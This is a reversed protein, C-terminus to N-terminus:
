RVFYTSHPGKFDKLFSDFYELQEYSSHLIDAPFDPPRRIIDGDKSQLIKYCTDIADVKKVVSMVSSDLKTLRDTFHEDLTNIQTKMSDVDTQIANLQKQIASLLSLVLIFYLCQFAIYVGKRLYSPFAIKSQKNDSTPAVQNTNDVAPTRFVNPENVINLPDEFTEPAEEKIRVESM